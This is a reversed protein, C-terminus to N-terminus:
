LLHGLGGFWQQRFADNQPQRVELAVSTIRDMRKRGVATVQVLKDSEM